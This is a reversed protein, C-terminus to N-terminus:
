AHYVGCDLDTIIPYHLEGRQALLRPEAYRSPPEGHTEIKGLPLLKHAYTGTSATLGRQQCVSSVLSSTIGLPLRKAKDVPVVVRPFFTMKVPLAEMDRGVAIDNDGRSFTRRQLVADDHRLMKPSWQPFVFGDVVDIADLMIVSDFVQLHHGTGFMGPHVHYAGSPCALVIAADLASRCLNPMMGKPKAPLAVM